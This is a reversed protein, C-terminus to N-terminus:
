FMYRLVIRTETGNNTQGSKSITTEDDRTVSTTSDVDEYFWAAEGAVSFSDTFSYSVGLTPAIKYGDSENNSVTRLAFFPSASNSVPSSSNTLESEVYSVRAGYYLSLREKLNKLGFVGFGLEYNEFDSNSVSSDTERDTYAFSVEVLIKESVRYPLYIASDDDRVSIGVGLEGAAVGFTALSLSTVILIRGIM